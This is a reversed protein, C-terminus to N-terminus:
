AEKHEFDGAPIGAPPAGAKRRAKPTEPLPAPAPAEAQPVPPVAAAVATARNIVLIRDLEEAAATADKPDTSKGARQLLAKVRDLTAQVEFCEREKAALRDRLQQEEAAAKEDATFKKPWDTVLKRALGAPLTYSQNPDLVYKTLPPKPDGKRAITKGDVVQDEPFVQDDANWYAITRGPSKNYLKQNM